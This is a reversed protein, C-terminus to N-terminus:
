KWAHLIIRYRGPLFRQHLMDPPLTKLGMEHLLHRGAHRIKGWLARQVPPQFPTITPAGQIIEVRRFGAARVMGAIAKENPSWWNTFDGALEDREFFEVLSLHEYRPVLLAESEIVALERTAAAVKELALLPHRMHYLIGLWLVVDFPGQLEKVFDVEMFNGVHSEANSHLVAHALDYGRKGPLTDLKWADTEEFPRPPSGEEQWRVKHM